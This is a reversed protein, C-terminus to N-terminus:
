RLGRPPSACVDRGQHCTTPQSAGIRLGNNARRPGPRRLVVALPLLASERYGTWIAAPGPLNAVVHRILAAPTTPIVASYSELQEQSLSGRPGRGRSHFANPAATMGEVKVAAVRRDTRWIKEGHTASEENLFRMMRQRKVGLVHPWTADACCAHGSTFYSGFVPHKEIQCCAHIVYTELASCCKCPLM